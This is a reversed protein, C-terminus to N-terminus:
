RYIRRSKLGREELHTEPMHPVVEDRQGFFPHSATGNPGVKTGGHYLPLSPVQPRKGMKVHGDHRPNDVPAQQDYAYPNQGRTPKM